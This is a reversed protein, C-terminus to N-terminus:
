GKKSYNEHIKRREKRGAANSSASSYSNSRMHVPATRDARVRDEHKADAGCCVVGSSESQGASGTDASVCCKWLTAGAGSESLAEQRLGIDVIQYETGYITVLGFRDQATITDLPEKVDEM